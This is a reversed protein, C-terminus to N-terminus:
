PLENFHCREVSSQDDRTNKSLVAVLADGLAFCFDLNM